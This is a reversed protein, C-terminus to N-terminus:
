ATSHVPEHRIREIIAKDVEIPDDGEFLPEDYLDFSAENIRELAGDLMLELDAAADELESRGWQPRSMILLAFTAHQKDLGLVAASSEQEREGTEALVPTNEEDTFISALLKSVQQSEDQLARVRDHDLQFGTAARKRPRGPKTPFSTHLDSFVTASELGLAKYAKELVRVEDPSLMGDISVLSAMYGAITERAKKSLEGIKKKLSSLSLPNIVMLKMHAHLRIRDAETLGQWAAIQQEIYQREHQSYEGDAMAVMAALKLTLQATRYHVSKPDSGTTVPKAFLVIHDEAKPTRAGDEINPEIAIDKSDLHRALQLLTKRDAEVPLALTEMLGRVTLEMMSAKVKDRLEDFKHATAQPWLPLPLLIRAATTDRAEPTRGLLRSYADLEDTTRTVLEALEDIPGTVATVDPLEESRPLFEIQGAFGSSAPRYFCKLKTRNQPLIMGEGFKEQYRIRFLQEFEIACRQAATRFYIGAQRQAWVLALDVPVPAKDRSAQGLAIRLYYPLEYTEPQEPFPTEYLREGGGLSRIVDLLGDAYQQFSRSTVGYISLLREVETAISSLESRADDCKPVDILVRRELGYFFLFVYGIDISPDVRGSALWDLYKRRAEKGIRAYSPWYGLEGANHASDAVPLQPDLLSPDNPKNSTYLCQGSYVMGGDFSVGQIQLEEGAKIWKAETVHQPTSSPIGYSTSNRAEGVTVPDDPTRASFTVNTRLGEEMLSQLRARMERRRLADEEIAEVEPSKSKAQAANKSMSALIASKEDAVQSNSTNTKVPFGFTSKKLVVVAVWILGLMSLLIWGNKPSAFFVAILLYILIFWLVKGACGKKAM